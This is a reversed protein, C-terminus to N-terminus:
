IPAGSADVKRDFWVCKQKRESCSQALPPARDARNWKAARPAWLDDDLTAAGGSLPQPKIPHLPSVTM